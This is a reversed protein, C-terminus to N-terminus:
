RKSHSGDCAPLKQSLGCLCDNLGKGLLIRPTCNEIRATRTKAQKAASFHLLYARQRGPTLAAFATQLAPDDEFKAQLEAPLDLEAEEQFSVTQGTKELDIAAAVYTRITPELQLTQGIDTFEIVRAARTNEGPKTLVGDPDELLAGKFFSLRCSRKFAGIMAVNRDQYTYCPARWKWAETLGCDTVIGRLKQLVAHWTQHSALYRDVELLLSM